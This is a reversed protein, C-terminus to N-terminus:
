KDLWERKDCVRCYRLKKQDDPIGMSMKWDHEGESNLCPSKQASYTRFMETDYVFFKECEGCQMHGPGDAVEWADAQEHECYPCILENESM